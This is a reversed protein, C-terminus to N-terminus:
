KKWLGSIKGASIRTRRSLGRTPIKGAKEYLLRLDRNALIETLAESLAARAIAGVLEEIRKLTVLEENVQNNANRSIM